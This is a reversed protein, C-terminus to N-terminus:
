WYTNADEGGNTYTNDDGASKHKNLHINFFYISITLLGFLQILQAGNKQIRNVDLYKSIDLFYSVVSFTLFFLVGSFLWDVLSRYFFRLPSVDM